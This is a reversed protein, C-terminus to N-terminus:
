LNEQLFNELAAAATEEEDGEVRIRLTEGCRTGLTMLAMLRGADVSKDGFLVTIKCPFGKAAKVFAGCPRAHFGWPDRIVHKIEIM